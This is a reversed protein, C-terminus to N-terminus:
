KIQKEAQAESPEESFTLVTETAQTESKKHVQSEDLITGDALSPTVTTKSTDETPKSSAEKVQELMKDM